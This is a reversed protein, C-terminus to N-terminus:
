GTPIDRPFGRRWGRPGRGGGRAARKAPGGVGKVRVGCAVTRATGRAGVRLGRESQPGHGRRACSGAGGYTVRVGGTAGVAASGCVRFLGADWGRLGREPQPGHGRRACNGAGRYTVRFGGTAGVAASGCVRFLGVDRGGLGRKPQPGHGSRACNGAGRYTVRFAETGARVPM